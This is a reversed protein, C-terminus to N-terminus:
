ATVLVARRGRWRGTLAGWDERSARALALAVLPECALTEGARRAAVRELVAAAEGPGVRLGGSGPGLLVCAAAEVLPRRLLWRSRRWLDACETFTEVALVLARPCVGTSVLRGAQWLADITATAGGILIVYRGTLGFEISVEAPVASAATYPFHLTGAAASEIFARNSAGYAGATVYLLATGNGEIAERSLGADTLLADVAAVGLLCERTARRFRDGDLRPTEVTIVARGAAAARADAPLAAVGPGWGTLLGAGVLAVGSM